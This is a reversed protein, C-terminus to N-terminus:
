HLDKQININNINEKLRKDQELKHQIRKLTITSEENYRDTTNIIDLNWLAQIFRQNKNEKIYKIIEKIIQINSPYRKDIQEQINKNKLEILQSLKKDIEETKIEINSDM